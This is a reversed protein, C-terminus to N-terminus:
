GSQDLIMLSRIVNSSSKRRKRGEGRDGGDGGDGGDQPTGESDMPNSGRGGEGDLFSDGDSDPFEPYTGLNMKRMLFVMEMRISRLSVEM